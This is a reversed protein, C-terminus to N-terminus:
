LSYIMRSPLVRFADGPASENHRVVSVKQLRGDRIEVEVTVESEYGRATGTYSGDNYKSHNGQEREQTMGPFGSVLIIAFFSFILINWKTM